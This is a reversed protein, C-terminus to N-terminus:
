NVVQTITGSSTKFFASSPYIAKITHTGVKLSSTTFTAAGNTTSGTGIKTSNAYFNVIAGNEIAGYAATIAATFTV